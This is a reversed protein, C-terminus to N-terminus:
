TLKIKTEMFNIFLSEENENNFFRNPIIYAMQNDNYLYYANKGKEVKKIASWNMKSESDYKTTIFQEDTIEIKRKGLINGNKLPVNKTNKLNNYIILFYTFFAVISSSITPMLNFHKANLFIEMIAVITICYVISKKLGKNKLYYHVHFDFYDERTIEIELKM